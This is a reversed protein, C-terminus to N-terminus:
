HQEGSVVGLFVQTAIYAISAKTVSSMGHIRANGSRPAKM